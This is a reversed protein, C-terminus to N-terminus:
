AADGEGESNEHVYAQLVNVVQGTAANLVTVLGTAPQVILGALQSRLEDLSPLKSIAEVKKPDLLTDPMVGGKIRVKEQRDKDSTFDLVAKAVGPFNELGFAIATPGKLLDDPVPWGQDQLARTFLTNKAVLYQGEAERVKARLQDVGTVSLGGYQIVVFGNTRELLEVYQAILEEKRAKTIAM